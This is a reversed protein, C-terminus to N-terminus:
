DLNKYHDWASTLFTSIALWVLYFPILHNQFVRRSKFFDGQALCWFVMILQIVWGATLVALLAM